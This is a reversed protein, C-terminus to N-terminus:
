FRDLMSNVIGLRGSKAPKAALLMATAVAVLGGDWLNPTCALAFAAGIGQGRMDRNLHMLSAREVELGAGEMVHKQIALDYGYYPKVDTASKVEILHYTPEECRRLIDARVLM